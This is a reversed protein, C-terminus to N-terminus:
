PHVWILMRSKLNVSKRFSNGQPYSSLEYSGLCCCMDNLHQDEGNRVAELLDLVDGAQNAALCLTLARVLEHLHTNSCINTQANEGM